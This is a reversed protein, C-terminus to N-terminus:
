ESKQTEPRPPPDARTVTVGGFAIRGALLLPERRPTDALWVHFNNLPPRDVLRGEDDLRDGRVALKLAPLDDGGPRLRVTERGVTRVTLLHLHVGEVVLLRREEGPPPPELARLVFMSTVPDFFAAGRHTKTMLWDRQFAATRALGEAADFSAARVLPDDRRGDIWLASTPRLTARDVLARTRGGARSFAAALGKPRTTGEFRFGPVGGVDLEEVRYTLTGVVLPGFAVEFTLEEGHVFARAADARLPLPTALAAAPSPADPESACGAAAFFLAAAAGIRSARQPAYTM